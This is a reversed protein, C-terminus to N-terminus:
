CGSASARTLKAAGGGARAAPDAPLQPPVMRQGPLQRWARRGPAMIGQDRNFNQLGVMARGENWGMCIQKSYIFVEIVGTSEYLIIQHTNEILSSCEPSLFLSLPTLMVRGPM